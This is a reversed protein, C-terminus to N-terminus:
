VQAAPALAGVGRQARPKGLRLQLFERQCGVWGEESEGQQSGM